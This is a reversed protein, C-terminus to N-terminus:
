SSCRGPRSRRGARGRPSHSTSPAAARKGGEVIRGLLQHSDETASALPIDDVRMPESDGELLVRQERPPAHGSCLLQRHGARRVPRRCGCASRVTARARRARIRRRPAGSGARPRCAGASPSRGCLRGRDRHEGGRRLREPRESATVRWEIPTRPAAASRSRNESSWAGSRGAGILSAIKSSESCTTTRAFLRACTFSTRSTRSGAGVSGSSSAVGLFEVREGVLQEPREIRGVGGRLRHRQRAPRRSDVNFPEGTGAGRGGQRRHQADGEDQDLVRDLVELGNRGLTQRESIASTKMLTM